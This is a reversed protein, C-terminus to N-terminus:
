PRAPSVPLSADARGHLDFDMVRVGTLGRIAYIGGVTITMLAAIDTGIADLPWAITM